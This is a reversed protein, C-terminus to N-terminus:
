RKIKRGYGHFIIQVNVLVEGCMAAFKNKLNQAFFICYTYKLTCICGVALILNYRILQCSFIKKNTLLPSFVTPSPQLISTHYLFHLLYVPQM